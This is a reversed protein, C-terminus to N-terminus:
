RRALAAVPQAAPRPLSTMIPMCVLDAEFRSDNVAEVDFRRLEATGLKLYFIEYDPLLASLNRGM